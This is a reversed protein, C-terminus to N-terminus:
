TLFAFRSALKVVKLVRYVDVNVGRLVVKVAKEEALGALKAMAKVTSTDIRQVSSFDLVVEGGATALRQHAEELASGIAGSDVTLWVSNTTM